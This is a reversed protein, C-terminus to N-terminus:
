EGRAPDRIQENVHLHHSRLHKYPASETLAPRRNSRATFLLSGMDGSM